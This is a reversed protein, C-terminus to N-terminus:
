DRPTLDRLGVVGQLRGEDNTVLVRPAGVQFMLEHARAVDDTALCSVVDPTMIDDVSSRSAIRDEAALRLAVDRDTLTGLVQGAASCVLLFEVNADRMRCAASMVSDSPGISFLNRSMVDMCRM